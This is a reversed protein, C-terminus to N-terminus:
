WCRSRTTGELTFLDGGVERGDHSLWIIGGRRAHRELLFAEHIIVDDGFKATVHPLHFAEIFQRIEDRSTGVRWGYGAGEARRLRNRRKTHALRYQAEREAMVPLVLQVRAPMAIGREPGMATPLSSPLTALVLDVGQREREIFRRLGTLPVEGSWEVAPKARRVATPVVNGLRIASRHGAGAGTEGTATKGVLRAAPLTRRLVPMVYRRGANLLPDLAQPMHIVAEELWRRMM